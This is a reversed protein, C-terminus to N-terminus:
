KRKFDMTIKMTGQPNSRILNLINEKLEYKYELDAVQEGIKLTFTLNNEATEWTGEYTDMTGTGSMNSTQRFKGDKMIYLDTISTGAKIGAEMFKQTGQDSVYTLDIISWTGILNNDQAVSTIFLNTCFLTLILAKM